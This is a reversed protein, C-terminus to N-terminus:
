STPTDSAEALPGQGSPEAVWADLLRFVVALVVPGVFLGVIGLSFLGGVVGVFILAIPLDAGRRILVPRLFNDLTTVVVTWVLLAIAWGTDGKWFLWIVAPVLVPAPGLQAVGLVLMAAILIGVSPVGAVALGIGGLLAQALATVIVGLAVGRIAQGALVVSNEGQEGALRRAVRKVQEAASEGNAYLVAAVLVTLFFHFLLTGLGGIKALLWGVVEDAYPAVRPWIGEAGGAVVENWLEVLTPGALPVGALWGPAAPPARSSISRVWDVIEGAHSILTALAVVLPVVFVLLLATTMVTVALGRKGWLRREVALHVPWTAVVLTSAWLFAPVFPRVIWFTGVILALIALVALVTRVLDREASEQRTSTPM